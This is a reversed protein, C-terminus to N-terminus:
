RSRRACMTPPRAATSMSTSNSSSSSTGEYSRSYLTSIGAVTNVAEEVKKTVGSEILEPSAGPYDMVIVVTPFDINPFQDVALRQYSFAGLVVFALHVMHGHPTARDLGPHVVHRRPGSLAETRVRRLRRRSRPARVPTGDRVLGATAAIVPTGEALGAAIEVWPEGGVVGREGLRVPTAVARGGQVQLVYPTAQDVRVASLPLALAQKRGLEITGKAFLGQRLAPQGEVVLYAM